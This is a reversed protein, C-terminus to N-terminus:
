GLKDQIISLLREPTMEAAVVGDIRVNPGKGCTKLCTVGRLEIRSRQEYPLEEISRILDQAGLLYCSTGVCIEIVM